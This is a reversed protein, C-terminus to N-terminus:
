RIFQMSYQLAQGIGYILSSVAISRQRSAWSFRDAAILGAAVLPRTWMLSDGTKIKPLDLIM